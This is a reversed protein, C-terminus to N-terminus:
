PLLIMSLELGAQAVHDTGQVCLAKFFPLLLLLLAAAPRPSAAETARCEGEGSATSHGLSYQPLGACMWPVFLAGAAEGQQSSGKFGLSHLHCPWCNEKESPGAETGLSSVPLWYHGQLAEELRPLRSSTLSHTHSHPSTLIYTTAM